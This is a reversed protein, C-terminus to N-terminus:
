KSQNMVDDQLKTDLAYMYQAVCFQFWLCWVIKSWVNSFATVGYRSAKDYMMQWEKLTVKEVRSHVSEAM